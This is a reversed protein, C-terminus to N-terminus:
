DSLWLLLTQHESCFPAGQIKCPLRNVKGPSNFGVQADHADARQIGAGHCGLPVKDM